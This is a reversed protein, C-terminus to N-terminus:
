AHQALHARVEGRLDSVDRGLEEIANRLEGLARETQLQHEGTLEIQRQLDSRLGNLQTGLLGVVSFLAAALVGILLVEM